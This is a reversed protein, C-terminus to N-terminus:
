DLPSALREVLEQKTGSADVEQAEALARLEAVRLRALDPVSTPPSPAADAEQGTAAARPEIRSGCTGCFRHAPDCPHGQPCDVTPADIVDGPRIPDGSLLGAAAIARALQEPLKEHSGAIALIADVLQGERDRQGRKDREERARQEDPTEPIEALTPSWLPDTRLHQECAPCDLAWIKVAAGQTVERSHSAGCGGHDASLAVHVVDSRAYLTV